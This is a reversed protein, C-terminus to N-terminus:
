LNVFCAERVRRVEGKDKDSVNVGLIRFHLLQDAEPKTAHLRLFAIVFFHNVMM